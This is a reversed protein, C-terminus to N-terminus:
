DLETIYEVEVGCHMCTARQGDTLKIHSKNSIFHERCRCKYVFKKPHDAAKKSYAGVRAKTTPKDVSFVFRMMEKWERGHGNKVDGHIQHVLLHSIEHPVTDGIMDTPNLPLLEPNIWMENRSMVAVGVARPRGKFKELYIRPRPLSRKFITEAKVYCEDVKKIIYEQLNM